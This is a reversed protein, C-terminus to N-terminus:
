TLRETGAPHLLKHWQEVDLTQAEEWSVHAAEYGVTQTHDIDILEEATPERECIRVCALAAVLALLVLIAYGVVCIVIVQTANAGVIATITDM